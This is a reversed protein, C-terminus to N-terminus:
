PTDRKPCLYAKTILLFMIGYCINNISYIGLEKIGKNSYVFDNLLFLPITCSFYFIVALSIWFPMEKFLGHFVPNKFREFFYFFGPTLICAAQVIFFIYVPFSFFLKLYLWQTFVYILYGGTIVSMVKIIKGSTFVHRYFNYILLLEILLFINVSASIIKLGNEIDSRLHNMLAAIANQLFSALPYLYFIKLPAFRKRRKFGVWLAIFSCIVTFLITIDYFSSNTKM